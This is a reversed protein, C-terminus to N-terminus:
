NKVLYTWIQLNFITRIDDLVKLLFVSITYTDDSVFLVGVITRTTMSPHLGYNCESFMSFDDMSDGSVKAKVWSAVRLLLMQEGHFIQFSSADEHLGLFLRCIIPRQRQDRDINNKFCYKSILDPVTKAFEQLKVLEQENLERVTFATSYGALSFM